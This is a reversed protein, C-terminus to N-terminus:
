WLCIPYTIDICKKPCDFYCDGCHQCEDHHALYPLDTEEDWSFVDMPCIEYCIKCGTCKKYNIYVPM